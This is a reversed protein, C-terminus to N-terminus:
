GEERVILNQGRYNIDPECNCPQGKYIACWDDHLIAVEALGEKPLLGQRQLKQLKRIYNPTESM